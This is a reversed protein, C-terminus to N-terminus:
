IKYYKEANRFFLYDIEDVSLQSIINYYADWYDFYTKKSSAKDVPFNSGLMCRNTSFKELVFDFFPKINYKNWLPDREGFGSLKIAVNDFQSLEKVAEKWKLFNEMSINVPWLSHNIIFQLNPYKKFVKSAEEFQFYNILFDFTLNKKELIKLNSIWQNNELLSKDSNKKKIDYKLIQRIGRFNPFDLHRDLDYEAHQSKLDVFGIIGNPFGLSNKNALLQLSRTEDLSYDRNIEAQIHIIKNVNLDGIDSTFNDILYNKKLFINTSNTIWDYPYKKLDWFHIHTDIIKQVLVKSM